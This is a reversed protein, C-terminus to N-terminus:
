SINEGPFYPILDFPSYPKIVFGSAGCQETIEQVMPDGRGSAFVIPVTNYNSLARIKELTCQGDMHPMRLDLLILDPRIKELMHLATQGSAARYVKCCNRLQAAAARLILPDDDVLLIVPEPRTTTM